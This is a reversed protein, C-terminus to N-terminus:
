FSMNIIRVLVAFAQVHDKKMIQALVIKEEVPLYPVIVNEVVNSQEMVVHRVVHEVHGHVGDVM